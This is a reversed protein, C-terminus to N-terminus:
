LADGKLPINLDERNNFLSEDNTLRKEIISM